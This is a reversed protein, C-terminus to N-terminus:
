PRSSAAASSRARRTTPRPTRGARCCRRTRPSRWSPAAAARPRTGSRRYRRKPACTGRAPCATARDLARRRARRRPPGQSARACGRRPRPRHRGTQAQSPIRSRSHGGNSGPIWRDASIPQETSGTSAEHETLRGEDVVQADRAEVQREPRARGVADVVRVKVRELPHVADTIRAEDEVDGHRLYPAQHRKPERAGGVGVHQGRRDREVERRGGHKLRLGYRVGLGFRGRIRQRPHSGQSVRSGLPAAPAAEGHGGRGWRAATTTALHVKSSPAGGIRWRAETFRLSCASAIKEYM